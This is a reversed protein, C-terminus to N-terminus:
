APTPYPPSPAMDIRVMDCSRFATLCSVANRTHMATLDHLFLMIKIHLACPNLGHASANRM